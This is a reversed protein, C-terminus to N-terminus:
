KFCYAAWEVSLGGMRVPTLALGVRAKMCTCSADVSLRHSRRHALRSSTALTQSYGPVSLNDEVGETDHSSYHVGALIQFGAPATYRLYGEFGFAADTGEFDDGNLTYYGGTAGIGFGAPVPLEQATVSTSLLVIAAVAAILPSLRGLM